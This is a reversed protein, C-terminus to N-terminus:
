LASAGPRCGHHLYAELRRHGADLPSLALAEAEAEAWLVRGPRQIRSVGARTFPRPDGAASTRPVSARGAGEAVARPM